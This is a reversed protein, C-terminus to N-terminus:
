RSGLAKYYRVLPLPIYGAKEYARRAPAHGPDGGTAVQALKMGKDEMFRLAHLNLGTAVGQRQHAPHVALMDLDGSLSGYDLQCVAFGAISGEIEAVWVTTQVDSNLGARCVKEVASRQSKQWDPYILGYIREGLVKSFSSFVPDWAALSLRVVDEIDEVKVRRINMQIEENPKRLEFYSAKARNRHPFWISRNGPL